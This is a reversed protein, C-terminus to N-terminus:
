ARGRNFYATEATVIDCVPVPRHYSGAAVSTVHGTATLTGHLNTDAPFVIDILSATLGHQTPKGTTPTETMPMAMLNRCSLPM